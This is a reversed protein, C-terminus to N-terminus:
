VLLADPCKEVFIEVSIQVSATFIDRINTKVVTEESACVCVCVCWVCLHVSFIFVFATFNGMIRMLCRLGPCGRATNSYVLVYVFVSLYM